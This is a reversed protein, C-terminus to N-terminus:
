VEQFELQPFRKEVEQLTKAKFDGVVNKGIYINGRYVCDLDTFMVDVQTVDELKDGYWMDLIM